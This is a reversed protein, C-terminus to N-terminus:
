ELQARQLTERRGFSKVTEKADEKILGHKNTGRRIGDVWGNM